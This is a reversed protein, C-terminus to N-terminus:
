VSDRTDSCRILPIIARWSYPDDGLLEYSGNLRQLEDSVLRRGIGESRVMRSQQLINFFRTLFPSQADAKRACNELAIVLRSRELRVSVSNEREPDAHRVVDKFKATLIRMLGLWWNDLESDSPYEGPMLPPHSGETIQVDVIQVPFAGDVAALIEIMEAYSSPLDVRGKKCVVAKMSNRAILWCQVIVDSLSKPNETFLELPDRLGSWLKIVYGANVLLEPIPIIKFSEDIVVGNKAFQKVTFHRVEDPPDLLWNSNLAAAMQKVEHSFDNWLDERGREQQIGLLRARDYFDRVSTAVSRGYDHLADYDSPLATEERKNLVLIVPKRDPASEWDPKTTLDIWLHHVDRPGLRGPVYNSSNIFETTTRFSFFGDPKEDVCRNGLWGGCHHVSEAVFAGVATASAMPRELAWEKEGELYRESFQNLLFRLNVLDSQAQETLRRSKKHEFLWQAQQGQAKFLGQPPTSGFDCCFWGLFTGAVTLLRSKSKASNEFTDREYVPIFVQHFSRQREYDNLMKYLIWFMESVGEPAEDEHDQLNLIFRGSNQAIPCSTEVAPKVSGDLAVTLLGEILPPTTKNVVKTKVLYGLTQKCGDVFMNADAFHIETLHKPVFGIHSCHSYLAYLESLWRLKNRNNSKSYQNSSFARLRAVLSKELRHGKELTNLTTDWDNRHEQIYKELKAISERVDFATTGAEDPARANKANKHLKEFKDSFTFEFLMRPGQYTNPFAEASKHENLHRQESDGTLVRRIFSYQARSICKMKQWLIDGQLDSMLQPIRFATEKSFAWQDPLHGHSV